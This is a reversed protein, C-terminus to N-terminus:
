EGSLLRVKWLPKEEKTGNAVAILTIGRGLLRFADGEFLLCSDELSFRVQYLVVVIAFFTM